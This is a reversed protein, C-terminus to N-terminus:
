ENLVFKNIEIERLIAKSIWLQVVPRVAEVSMKVTGAIAELSLATSSKPSPPVSGDEGSAAPLSIRQFLSLVEVYIPSLRFEVEKGGRSQQISITVVGENKRWEVRQTPKLQTFAREYERLLSTTEPPLFSFAELGADTIGADEETATTTQQSGTPWFHASKVVMSLYSSSSIKNAILQSRIKSNLRRSEMIDKIMVSCHSLAAEGFKSKMLDLSALERDIEFSGISILRGALMEKYENLFSEQGGYVGILLSMTDAANRDEEREEDLLTSVICKVSDPRKQLHVIVPTAIRVFVNMTREPFLFSVVKFTRLYMELVDETHAGPILLRDALQRKISAVVYESQCTLTIATKLEELLLFSTPFDRILNFLQSSRLLLFQDPIYYLLRRVRLNRAYHVRKGNKFAVQTAVALIAEDDNSEVVEEILGIERAEKASISEGNLLKTMPSEKKVKRRSVHLTRQSLMTDSMDIDGGFLASSLVVRYDCAMVIELGSGGLVNGRIAAVVTKNCSNLIGLLDTVSSDQTMENESDGLHSLFSTRKGDSGVFADNEGM